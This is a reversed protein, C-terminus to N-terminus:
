KRLRLPRFIASMNVYMVLKAMYLHVIVGAYTLKLTASSLLTYVTSQKRLWDNIIM